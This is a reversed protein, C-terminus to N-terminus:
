FIPTRLRACLQPEQHTKWYVLRGVFTGIGSSGVIKQSNNEWKLAEIKGALVLCSFDARDGESFLIEGPKLSKIEIESEDQLLEAVDKGISSQNSLKRLAELRDDQSMFSSSNSRQRFLKRILAGPIVIVKLKEAAKITNRHASNFSYCAEEGVLSPIGKLELVIPNKHQDFTSVRVSGEVVVYAEDNSTGELVVTENELYNRVEFFQESLTDEKLDLARSLLKEQLSTLSLPTM